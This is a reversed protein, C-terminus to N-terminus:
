ILILLSSSVSKDFFDCNNNYTSLLIFKNLKLEFSHDNQNIKKNM